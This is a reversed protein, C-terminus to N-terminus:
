KLFKLSKAANIQLSTGLLLKLHFSEDLQWGNGFCETRLVVVHLQLTRPHMADIFDWLLKAGM